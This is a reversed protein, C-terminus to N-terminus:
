WCLTFPTGEAAEAGRGIGSIARTMAGDRRLLRDALAVLLPNPTASPAAVRLAGALRAEAGPGARQCALVYAAATSRSIGAWCHVLLPATAPWARGFALLAAVMDRSPAVLGPRTEAIDNFRLELRQAPLGAPPLPPAEPSALTVLHSPRRTALLEPVASLPAVLIISV